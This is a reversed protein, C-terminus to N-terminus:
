HGVLELKRRALGCQVGCSGRLASSSLGWTSGGEVVTALRYSDHQHDFRDSYHREDDPGIEDTATQQKSLRTVTAERM